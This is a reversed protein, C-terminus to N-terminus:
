FTEHMDPAFAVLTGAAIPRGDVTEPDAYLAKGDRVPDDWLQILRDIDFGVDGTKDDARMRSLTRGSLPAGPLHGALFPVKGAPCRGPAAARNTASAPRPRRRSCRGPSAYSM